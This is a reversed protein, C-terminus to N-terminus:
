KIEQAGLGGKRLWGQLYTQVKSREGVTFQSAWKFNWDALKKLESGLNLLNVRNRAYKVLAYGSGEHTLTFTDPTELGEHIIFPGAIVGEVFIDGKNTELFAGRKSM